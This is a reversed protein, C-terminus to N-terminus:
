GAPQSVHRFLTLSLQVELPWDISGFKRSWEYWISIFKELYISFDEPAEKSPSLQYVRGM